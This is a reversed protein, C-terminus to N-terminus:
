ENCLNLPIPGAGSGPGYSAVLNGSPAYIKFSIEAYFDGPFFWDASTLGEPITVIATGSSVNDTCDYAPTEYPSCLGVQIEDGNSLTVTIGPGGGGGSTQWGDGYSDEMVVTYDGAPPSPLICVVTTDYRFGSAFFQGTVNGNVNTSTFVSGDELIMALRVRIIDGGDLRPLNDGINLTSIADAGNISLRYRPKGSESSVTFESAPITTLLVDAISIDEDDLTTETEGERDVFNDVLSLYVEMSSFRTSNQFDDAEIEVFFESGSPDSKNINAPSVLDITRLVAAQELIDLPFPNKDEDTCGLVMALLPLYLFLKNIKKM